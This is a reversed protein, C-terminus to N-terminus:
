HYMHFHHKKGIVKRDELNMYSMHLINSRKGTSEKEIKEEPPSYIGKVSSTRIKSLFKKVKKISM